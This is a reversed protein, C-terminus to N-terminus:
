RVAPVSFKKQVTDFLVAVEARSCRFAPAVVDGPALSTIGNQIATAYYNRAPGRLPGAANGALVSRTEENTLLRLKEQAVLISVLSVIQQLRSTPQGPELNLSLSCGFCVMQRMLYPETARVADYYSSGRPVDPYEVSAPSGGLRFMRQLSVLFDGLAYPSDPDFRTENRPRMIGQSVMGNIAARTSPDSPLDILTPGPAAPATQGTAGQGFSPCEWSVTVLLIAIGLPSKLAQCRILKGM